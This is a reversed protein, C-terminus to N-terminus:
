LTSGQLAAQSLWPNLKVWASVDAISIAFHHGQISIADDIDECGPPDIHVTPMDLLPREAPVVLPPLNKAWKHSGANELLVFREVSWDGCPGLIRM